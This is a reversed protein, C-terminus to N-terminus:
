CKLIDDSRTALNAALNRSSTAPCTIAAMATFVSALRLSGGLAFDELPSPSWSISSM